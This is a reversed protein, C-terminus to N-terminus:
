KAILDGKKIRKNEIADYKIYQERTLIRKLEESKETQLKEIRKEPNCLYCNHAKQVKLAHRFELDMLQAAQADDFHILQQMKHVKAQAETKLDEQSVASKSGNCAVALMMAPFILTILIKKMM